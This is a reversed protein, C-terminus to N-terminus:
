DDWGISALQKKEAASLPVAKGTKEQQVAHHLLISATTEIGKKMRADGSVNTGHAAKKLAGALQKLEAADAVHGPRNQASYAIHGDRTIGVINVYGDKGHFAVGNRFDVGGCNVAGYFGDATMTKVDSFFKADRLAPKAAERTSSAPRQTSNTVKM